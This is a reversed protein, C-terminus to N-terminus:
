LSSQENPAGQKLTVFKRADKSDQQPKDYNWGGGKTPEGPVAVMDPEANVQDAARTIEERATRIAYGAGQSLKAEWEKCIEAARLMGEKVGSAPATYLKTGVPLDRFELTEGVFERGSVGSNRKVKAVPDQQAALAALCDALLIELEGAAPIMALGQALGTQKRTLWEREIHAQLRKILEQNM